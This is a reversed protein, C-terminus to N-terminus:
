LAAEIPAHCRPDAPRALCAPRRCWHAADLADLAQGVQEWRGPALRWAPLDGLVDVADTIAHM